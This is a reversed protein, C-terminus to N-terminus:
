FAHEIQELVQEAAYVTQLTYPGDPLKTLPVVIPRVLRPRVYGVAALARVFRHRQNSHMQADSPDIFRTLLTYLSDSGGETDALAAVLEDDDADVGERRVTTLLDMELYPFREREQLIKVIGRTVDTTLISLEDLTKLISYHLGGPPIINDPRCPPDSSFYLAILRDALQRREDRNFVREPQHEHQNYPMGEPIYEPITTRIGSLFYSLSAPDNEFTALGDGDQDGLFRELYDDPPVGMYALGIAAFIRQNRPAQLDRLADNLHLIRIKRSFRPDKMEVGYYGVALVELAARRVRISDHGLLFRITPMLVPTKLWEKRFARLAWPLHYSNDYKQLRTLVTRLFLPDSAVDDSLFARALALLISSNRHEKVVDNFGAILTVKNRAPLGRLHRLANVAWDVEEQSAAGGIASGIQQGLEFVQQRDLLCTVTYKFDDARRYVGDELEEYEVKIIAKRFHYWSSHHYEPVLQTAAITQQLDSQSWATNTWCLPVLVIAVLLKLASLRSKPNEM